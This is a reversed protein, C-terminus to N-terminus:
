TSLASLKEVVVGCGLDSCNNAGCRRACPAGKPIPVLCSLPDICKSQWEHLVFPATGVMSPTFGTDGFMRLTELFEFHTVQIKIKSHRRIPCLSVTWANQVHMKGDREENRTEELLLIMDLVAARGRICSSADGKSLMLGSWALWLHSRSNRSDTLCVAAHSLEGRIGLWRQERIM